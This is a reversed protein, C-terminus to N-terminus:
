YEDEDKFQRYAQKLENLTHQKDLEAALSIGKLYTEEAENRKGLSIYLAALQYYVALYAADVTLVKGFYELAQDPQGLSRYELALAYLLFTDPNETDLTNLLSQLRSDKM